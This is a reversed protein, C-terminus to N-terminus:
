EDGEFEKEDIEGNMKELILKVKGETDNLLSNCYKYLKIGREFTTLSDNLNLNGEELKEVIKELEEIAEEFTKNIKKDNM